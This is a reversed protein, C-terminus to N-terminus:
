IIEDLTLLKKKKKKKKKKEEKKLLQLAGCGHRSLETLTKTKSGREKDDHM